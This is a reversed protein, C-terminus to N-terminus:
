SIACLYMAQSWGLPTNENYLNSKGYYLEPLEGKANMADHTKKLYHKYRTKNGADKYIKALWPFGFCWEAESVGNNFYYDDHYRIVGNERVLKMEVNYLIQRKQHDNVVNFPYILSLQALDVEKTISERPLLENLKEQGKKILEQPVDVYSSIKQLGALCAGVSSSHIEENEEWIGNDEHQWYEISQLYQVLKQLIRHDNENRVLEIDKEKLDGVKFLFAGVADNQMNGWDEHFEELTNPCYRAHIYEHKYLPKKAIAFDIKYEHKLFIDFLAHYAKQVSKLDKVKELGKAEYITDRIWAQRGYHTKKANGSAVFLGNDHQLQKLIKQSKKKYLM